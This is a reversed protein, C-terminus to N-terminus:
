PRYKCEDSPLRDIDLFETHFETTMMQKRTADDMRHMLIRLTCLDIKKDTLFHTGNIWKLGLDNKMGYTAKPKYHPNTGSIKKHPAQDPYAEGYNAVAVTVKTCDLSHSNSADNPYTILVNEPKINMHVWGESNMCKVGKVVKRFIDKFCYGDTYTNDELDEMLDKLTTTYKSMVFHYPFPSEGDICPNADLLRVTNPCQATKMVAMVKKDKEFEEKWETKRWLRLPIEKLLGEGADSKVKYVFHSLSLYTGVAHGKTWNTSCGQHVASNLDLTSGVHARQAHRGRTGNLGLAGNVDLTSGVRARRVITRKMRLDESLDSRDLACWAHLWPLLLLAAVTLRAAM